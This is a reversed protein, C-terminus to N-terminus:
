RIKWRISIRELVEPVRELVESTRELVDSARELVESSREQVEKRCWRHFNYSAVDRRTKKSSFKNHELQSVNTFCLFKAFHKFLACFSKQRFSEVM